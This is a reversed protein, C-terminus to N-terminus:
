FRYGLNVAIRQHTEASRSPPSYAYWFELPGLITDLAFGGAWSHVLDEKVPKWTEDDSFAVIDYRALLYADAVYRSILDFRLEGTAHIFRLGTFRDPAFAPFETLGGIRFRHTFPTTLDAVGSNWGLRLVYRPVLPLVAEANFRVRNFSRDGGLEQLYSHYIIGIAVGETPFPQRDETDLRAELHVGSLYDDQLAGAGYLEVYEYFVGGELKGWTQLNFLADFDASSSRVDVTRLVEGEFDYIDQERLHYDGGFEWGLYTKALRDVRFNVLYKQDRAGYAAKLSVEEGQKLLNPTAVFQAFYRAKRDTDFGLGIGLKPFQAPELLLHVVVGGEPVPELYSYVVSYRGTAHLQTVTAMLESRRLPQGHRVGVERMVVGFRNEPVGQIEIGRVEGPDVAIQLTGDVLLTARVGAAAYGMGRLYRLIHELGRNIERTSRWGPKIGSVTVLEARKEPSLAGILVSRVDVELEPEDGGPILRQLADRNLRVAARGLDMIAQAQDFDTQTIGTLNPTIVLTAKSRSISDNDVTMLTTVQNAVEWPDNPDVGLTQPSACDVAVVEDLGMELTARVPINEVAGGDVLLKDDLRMPQFIIPVALSARIAVTLDGERFFVRDASTLDTAVMGVPVKLEDFNRVAAGYPSSLTLSLLKLFLSEGTLLANPLYPQFGEFRLTLLEQNAVEKQALFLNRRRPADRFLLNWDISTFMRALEDPRYGAGYMGAIVAGMSTGVVADVPVGMETLEQLVGIEALGRAGGGSLALGIAPRQYRLEPLFGRPVHASQVTASPLAGYLTDGDVIIRYRDSHLSTAFEEQLSQASLATPLVAFALMLVAAVLRRRGIGHPRPLRIWSGQRLTRM